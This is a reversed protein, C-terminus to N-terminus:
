SLRGVPSSGIRNARHLPRYTKRNRDSNCKPHVARLNELAHCHIYAKTLPLALNEAFEKVSKIHDVHARSDLLGLKGECLPCIGKQKEILTKRHKGVSLTRLVHFRFRQPSLAADDFEYTQM